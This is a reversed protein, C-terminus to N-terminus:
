TAYPQISYTSGPGGTGKIQIGHPRLWRENIQKIHVSIVNDSLPGGDYRDAYVANMLDRRTIDHSKRVVDYIRQKVEPMRIAPPIIQGCCPCIKIAM